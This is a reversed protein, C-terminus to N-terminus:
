ASSRTANPASLTRARRAKTFALKTTACRRTTQSGDCVCQPGDDRNFVPARRSKKNKKEDIKRLTSSMSRSFRTLSKQKQTPTTKDREKKNAIAQESKMM